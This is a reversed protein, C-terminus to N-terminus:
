PRRLVRDKEIVVIGHDSITYERADAAHDFGARFWPPVDVNKDIICRNLRAGAGIRVGPFLISDTVHADHDIVVGPGVISREVHSGSVISGQCLLSGDVHAPEGAAGRSIKAPPLSRHSTYVPWDNNYLNFVPVPALLDMNADYYSDLTGVDRWYGKERDDQGPVLNTSFDYVHAVGAATLAPIIHSGLDTYQDDDGTPTVIDVLTKTTFVYNGMSALCRNEDGSMTPPDAVKEHFAIIEGTPSAEIV